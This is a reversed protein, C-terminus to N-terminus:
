RGLARNVANAVLEVLNTIADLGGAASGTIRRPSGPNM